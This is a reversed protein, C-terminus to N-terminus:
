MKICPSSLFFLTVKWPVGFEKYKDEGDFFGMVDGVLAKKKEEELIVDEWRSKQVNDWLDKNKQWYGGDFVLVEDHLEFSWKTAAEMLDDTKKQAEGKERASMVAGAESPAVLVYTLRAKSLMTYDGEAIYVLYENEKFSYDYCAFYVYDAFSGGKEDGYRRQPPVFARQVLFDSENGHPTYSADDHTDAFAILDTLGSYTITLHHNPHHLRISAALAAETFTRKASSHEYFDRPVNYNRTDAPVDIPHTTVNIFEDYPSM